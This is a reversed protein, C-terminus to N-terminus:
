EILLERAIEFEGMQAWNARGQRGLITVRADVFKSHDLMDLRSETSTYGFESRLVILVTSAGADLAAASGIGPVFHEDIIEEKGVNRFMAVLQVGSIPEESVNQLKFSISPVLKNERTETIGLDYWGTRVDVIALDTQVNRPTCGCVAVSAALAILLPRLM